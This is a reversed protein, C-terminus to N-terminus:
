PKEKTPDYWSCHMAWGEQLKKGVEEIKADLATVKDLLRLLTLDAEKKSGGEQRLNVRAYYRLLDGFTSFYHRGIWVQEQDKKKRLRELVLFKEETAIRIKPDVYGITVRKFEQAM